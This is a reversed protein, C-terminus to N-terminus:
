RCPTKINAIECKPWSDFSEGSFKSSIGIGGHVHSPNPDQELKGLILFFVNISVQSSDKLEWEKGQFWEMREM